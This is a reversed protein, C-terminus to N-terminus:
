ENFPTAIDLIGNKISTKQHSAIKKNHLKKLLACGVIISEAKRDCLTM